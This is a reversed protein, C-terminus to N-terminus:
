KFKAAILPEALLIAFSCLANAIRGTRAMMVAEEIDVFHVKLVEFPDDHAVPKALPQADFAVFYRIQNSQIAPNPAYGPLSLLRQSTFGTEEELERLASMTLDKEHPDVAGGPTELTFSDTGFRYQEILIVKGASTVPVVNVWSACDFTYINRTHQKDLSTAQQENLKLIPCNFVERRSSMTFPELKDVITM